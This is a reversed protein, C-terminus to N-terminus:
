LWLQAVVVTRGSLEVIPRGQLGEAMIIVLPNLRTAVGGIGQGQQGQLLQLRDEQKARTRDASLHM